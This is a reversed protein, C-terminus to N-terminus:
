LKKDHFIAEAKPRSEELRKATEDSLRIFKNMNKIYFNLRIFDNM